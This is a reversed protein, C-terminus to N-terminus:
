SNRGLQDFANCISSAINSLHASIRRFFRSGVSYFLADKQSTPDALADQLIKDTLEKIARHKEMVERALEEDSEKFAELTTAFLPSIAAQIERSQDAYIGNQMIPPRLQALEALSKTYDGIREVDHIISILALSIPLDQQPNLTLHEIVLRRVLREGLNIDQDQKALDLTPVEGTLFADSASAFMGEEQQLMRYVEGLADHILGPSNSNGLLNAFM